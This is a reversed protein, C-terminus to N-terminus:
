GIPQYGSWDPELAQRQGDKELHIYWGELLDVSLCNDVQHIDDKHPMVSDTMLRRSGIVKAEAESTAVCLTFDHFEALKGPYYGGFNVFWLQEVHEPPTQKLVIRYGDVHHLRVYSDLHLSKPIGYWQKRLTPYCSEISDGVVFRVDHVEINAGPADGGVYVLFLNM